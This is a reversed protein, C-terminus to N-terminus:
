KFGFWAFINHRWSLPQTSTRGQMAWGAWGQKDATTREFQELTFKALNIVYCFFEFSIYFIFFVTLFNLHFAYNNIILDSKPLLTSLFHNFSIKQQKWYQINWGNKITGLAIERIWM